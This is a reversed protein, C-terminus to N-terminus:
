LDGVKNGRIQRLVNFLMVTAIVDLLVKNVGVPDAYLKDSCYQINSYVMFCSLGYIM